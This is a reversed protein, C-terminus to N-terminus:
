LQLWCKCILRPLRDFDWTLKHFNKVINHLPVYYLCVLVSRYCYQVVWKISSIFWNWLIITLNLSVLKSNEFAINQYISHSIFDCYREKKKTLEQILVHFHVSSQWLTSLKDVFSYEIEYFIVVIPCSLENKLCFSSLELFHFWLINRGFVNTKNM